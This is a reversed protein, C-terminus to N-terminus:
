HRGPLIDVGSTLSQRWIGFVSRRVILWGTERRAVDDVYNVGIVFDGGPTSSALHYAIGYTVMRARDGHVETLQNGLFHMTTGFTEVSQRLNTIYDPYPGGFSQGQVYADDAFCSDVKAWDRDDIGHAYRRGLDEIEYRDQARGGRDPETTTAIPGAPDPM